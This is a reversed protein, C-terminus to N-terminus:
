KRIKKFVIYILYIIFLISGYLIYKMLYHEIVGWYEKIMVGIFVLVSNWIIFGFFTYFVFRKKDMKVMGAPLSILTRFMPLFRGIFIAKMGYRAFWKETREIQKNQIFLYKGYRILFSKGAIAGIYYFIFAGIMSFFTIILVAFIYKYM